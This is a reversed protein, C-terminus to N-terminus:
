GFITRFERRHRLASLRDPEDVEGGMRSSQRAFDRVFRTRRVIWEDVDRGVRERGPELGIREQERRTRRNGIGVKAKVDQSRREGSGRMLRVGVKELRPDDPREAKPIRGDGGRGLLDRADHLAVIEVFVPSTM